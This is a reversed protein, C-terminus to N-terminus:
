WGANLQALYDLEEATSARGLAANRHPFRGFRAIIAHHALASTLCDQLDPNEAVMATCLDICRDQDALAESHTFPLYFFLRQTPTVRRDMGLKIASAALLRAKEDHAFAQPTGRFLNRPFQDHAILMALWWEPDHRSSLQLQDVITDISTGFRAAIEADFADNRQFWLARFANPQGDFWFDIIAHMM